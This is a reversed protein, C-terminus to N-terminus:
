TGIFYVIEYALAFGMIIAVMGAIFYCLFKMREFDMPEKNKRSRLIIENIENNM